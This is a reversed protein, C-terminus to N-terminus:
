NNIDTTVEGTIRLLITPKSANSHVTITKTQRGTKGNSDFVVELTGKGGAVVPRTEYKPVTCGCSTTVSSIVVPGKGTNEFTFTCSVKEGEVIKGFDHEYESFSIIATDASSTGSSIKGPGSNGCSCAFVFPFFVFIILRLSDKMRFDLIENKMMQRTV